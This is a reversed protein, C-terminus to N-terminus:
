LQRAFAGPASAAPEGPLVRLICKELFFGSSSVIKSVGKTSM